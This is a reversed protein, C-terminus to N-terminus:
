RPQRLTHDIGSEKLSNAVTQVYLPGVHSDTVIGARTAKSLNSLLPGVHNLLGARVTIDYPAPQVNVTVVQASVPMPPNYRYPL